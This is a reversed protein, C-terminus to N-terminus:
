KWSAWTAACEKLENESLTLVHELIWGDHQRGGADVSRVKFWDGRRKLLRVPAYAPIRLLTPRAVSPDDCLVPDGDETPAACTGLVSGHMWGSVGDAVVKFWGRQSSGHIMVVRRNGHAIVHVIKGSPANRVNTGQPDKDIVLLKISNEHPQAQVSQVPVTFTM